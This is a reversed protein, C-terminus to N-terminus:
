GSRSATPELPGRWSSEEGRVGGPPRAPAARRRHRRLQQHARLGGRPLVRDHEHRPRRTRRSSTRSAASPSRSRSRTSTARCSRRRRLGRAGRRPRRAPLLADLPPHARAAQVEAAVAIEAAQRATSHGTERARTSSTTSSRRRTSSCTPRTPSRGRDGPVARHRRLDRDPPRPAARRAGARPQRRRRDRGGAPARLRPRARRRAARGRRRRLARAPRGRRVRLRLRRRPARGPVARDRLRRLRGGRAPRAGRARAPLAVRGWAPRM